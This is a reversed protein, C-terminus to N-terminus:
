AHGLSLVLTMLALTGVSIGGFYVTNPHRVAWRHVAEGVPPRYGTEREVLKRGEDVLYYGVHSEHTNPPAQEAFHIAARAVEEEPLETKRAIHEVIHRYHDRTGFSMQRYLGTPDDRLIRETGSQEEVFDKWDIRAITRLSTISNAVTVQTLAIRRNSRTVAEEASPGDEALWQELWVLPTFNTHYSRTQQLFRAVFTPTLRPHGDIFGSLARTLEEPSKDSADRLKAAWIDASEVEKLRAAVRLAMRRINEVLGLRLMTPVAWLEGMGLSAIKQYEGVFLTINDTDIHGETHAILEIALEYVRPYGALTGAALKPLEQYYGKPLSTRIERIHEQVIYANDLLWEGAPSIDLDVEVAENLREYVTRLVRRTDDLRELLPGSGRQKRSPLLTHQRAIARAREALRDAGLVEGRIPGVLDDSNDRTGLIRNLLSRKTKPPIATAM